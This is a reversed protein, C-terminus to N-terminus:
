CVCMCISVRETERVRNAAAVNRRAMVWTLKVIPINADAYLINLLDKERTVYQINM